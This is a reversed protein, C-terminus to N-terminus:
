LVHGEKYILSRVPRTSGPVDYEPDCGFGTHGINSM